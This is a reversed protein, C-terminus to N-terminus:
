KYSFRRIAADMTDQNIGIYRLTITPSSHNFFDQLLAVDKTQKYFHYGFTKRLTHTGISELNFEKAAERLIQYARKRTIPKNEGKRSTVVYEEPDREQLYWKLERKLYPHLEIRKQKRTKKERIVCHTKDRLDKVKLRLIDSVRLGLYIGLLFFIYDRTRKRKFYEEIDALLEKDRIPQVFNM